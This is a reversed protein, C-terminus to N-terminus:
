DDWDKYPSIPGSYGIGGVWDSHDLKVEASLSGPIPAVVFSKCKPCRSAHHGNAQRAWKHYCESCQFPTGALYYTPAPVGSYGDAPFPVSPLPSLSLANDNLSEVWGYGDHDKAKELLALNDISQDILTAQWKAIEAEREANYREWDSIKKVFAAKAEVPESDAPLPFLREGVNDRFGRPTDELISKM